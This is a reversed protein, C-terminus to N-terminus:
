PLDAIMKFHDSEFSSILIVPYKVFVKMKIHFLQGHEVKRMNFHYLNRKFNDSVMTKDQCCCSTQTSTYTKIYINM